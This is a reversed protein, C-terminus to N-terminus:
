PLAKVFLFKEFSPVSLILEGILDSKKSFWFFGILFPWLIRSFITSRSNPDSMREFFCLLFRLKVDLFVLFLFYSCLM